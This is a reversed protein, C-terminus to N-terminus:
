ESGFRLVAWRVFFISLWSALLADSYKETDKRGCRGMCCQWGKVGTVLLMRNREQQDEKRPHRRCSEWLSTVEAFDIKAQRTAM